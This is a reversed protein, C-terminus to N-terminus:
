FPFNVPTWPEAVEGYSNIYIDGLEWKPVEEFHFFADLEPVNHMYAQQGFQAAIMIACATVAEFVHELTARSFKGERDHKVANYANYWVLDRTPKGSKGWTAFPKIPDLWPYAPSRSRTNM